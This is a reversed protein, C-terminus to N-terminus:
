RARRAPVSTRRVGPRGAPKPAPVPKRTRRMLARRLEVTLRPLPIGAVEQGQLYRWPMSLPSVMSVTRERRAGMIGTLTESRSQGVALAAAARRAFDSVGCGLRQLAGPLRFIAHAPSRDQRM